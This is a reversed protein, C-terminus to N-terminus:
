DGWADRYWGRVPEPHHGMRRAVQGRPVRPLYAPFAFAAHCDHTAQMNTAREKSLLRANRPHYTRARQM